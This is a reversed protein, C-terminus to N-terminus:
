TAEPKEEGESIVSIAGPSAVTEVVIRVVNSVTTAQGLLDAVTLRELLIPTIGPRTDPVVLAAGTGPSGLTGEFLTKTRYPVEVAGTSWNSARTQPDRISQYGKSQM